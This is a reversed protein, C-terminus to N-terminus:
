CGRIRGRWLSFRQLRLGPFDPSRTVPRWSAALFLRLLFGLLPAPIPGLGPPIQIRLLASQPWPCPDRDGWGRWWGWWGPPGQSGSGPSLGAGGPPLEKPSWVKKRPHVGLFNSMLSVSLSAAASHPCAGAPPPPHPGAPHSQSETGGLEEAACGLTQIAGGKRCAGDGEGLVGFSCPRPPPGPRKM